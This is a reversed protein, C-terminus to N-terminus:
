EIVRDARLLLSQPFKIGQAKATKLNLVLHIQTPREIPLESPHAGRLIRDVYEAAKRMLDHTDSSYAMLGGDKVAEPGSHMAALRTRGVLDILAGGNRAYLGDPMYVLGDARDSVAREIAREFDERRRVAVQLAEQGLKACVDRIQAYQRKQWDVDPNILV